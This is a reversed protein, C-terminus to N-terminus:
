RERGSQIGRAQCLPPISLRLVRAKFLRAAHPRDHVFHERDHDVEILLHNPWHASRNLEAPPASTVSPLSHESGM